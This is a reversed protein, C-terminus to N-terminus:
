RPLKAALAGAARALRLYGAAKTEQEVGRVLTTALAKDGRRIALQALGLEARWRGLEFGEARMSARLVELERSALDMKAADDALEADLLRAELRTGSYQEFLPDARYASVAACSRTRFSRSPGVGGASRPSREHYLPTM